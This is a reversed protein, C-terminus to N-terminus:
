RAAVRMKQVAAEAKSARVEEALQNALERAADQTMDHTQRLHLCMGPIGAFMRECFPCNLAQRKRLGLPDGRIEGKKPRGAGKKPEMAAKVIREAMPTKTGPDGDGHAYSEGSLKGSSTHSPRPKTEKAAPAVVPEPDTDLEMDDTETDVDIVSTAPVAVRSIPGAELELPRGLDVSLAQLKAMSEDLRGALESPTMHVLGLAGTVTVRSGEKYIVGLDQGRQLIRDLIDAKARIATVMHQPQKNDSAIKHAADLDDINALQRLKYEVFTEIPPKKADLSEDRMMSKKLGIYDGAELSLTEQIYTDSKREALMERIRAKILALEAKDRAM